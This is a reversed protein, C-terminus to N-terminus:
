GYQSVMWRGCHQSLCRSITMRTVCSRTHLLFNQPRETICILSKTAYGCGIKLRVLTQSTIDDIVKGEEFFDLMYEEDQDTFVKM